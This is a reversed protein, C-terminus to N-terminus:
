KHLTPESAFKLLGNQTVNAFYTQALDDLPQGIFAPSLAISGSIRLM